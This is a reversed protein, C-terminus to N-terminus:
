GKKFPSKLKGLLSADKPPERRASWVVGTKTASRVREKEDDLQVAAQSLQSQLRDRSERLGKSENRLSEVEGHLTADAKFDNQKKDAAAQAERNALAVAAVVKSQAKERETKIASAM